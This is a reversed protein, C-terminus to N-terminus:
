IFARLVGALCVALLGAGIVRFFVVQNKTQLYQHLRLGLFHGILTFPLLLLQGLWQLDVGAIIFSCLKISTLIFWLVFLTDRLQQRPVHSVFVAVLLPAGVLSTGSFYGGLMLLGIDMWRSNSKFPRDLLYSIAFVSIMIFILVSVWEAPLALLGLVGLLKPLWIVKLAQGIYGWDITGPMPEARERAASRKLQYSRLTISSSFILLHVAIIPLFLLPQNEVLLLFPLALAAGGFGLGSRVFGSWVFILCVLVWQVISLEPLPM